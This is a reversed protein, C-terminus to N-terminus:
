GEQKGKEEQDRNENSENFDANQTISIFLEAYIATVDKYEKPKGEKATVHVDGDHLQRGLRDNGIL